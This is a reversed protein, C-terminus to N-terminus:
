QFTTKNDKIKTSGNQHKETTKNRIEEEDLESDSSFIRSEEDDEMDSFVKVIHWWGRQNKTCAIYEDPKRTCNMGLHRTVVFNKTITTVMYQQHQQQRM